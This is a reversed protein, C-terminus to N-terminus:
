VNEVGNKIIMALGYDTFTENLPYRPAIETVKYKKGKYRVYVYTVGNDWDDFQLGEPMYRHCIWFNRLWNIM